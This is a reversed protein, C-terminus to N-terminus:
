QALNYIKENFNEDMIEKDVNESSGAGLPYSHYTFADLGNEVKSLFEKVWNTDLATDVGFIKPRNKDSFKENVIKWLENFTEVGEEVTLKAEIGSEGYIENGLELAFINRMRKQKIWSELMSETESSNWSGTWSTNGTQKRGVM